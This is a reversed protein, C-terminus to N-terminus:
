TVQGSHWDTLTKGLTELTVTRFTCEPLASLFRKGYGKSIVRRDLIVFSGRDTRARILRGFGQRFRLAAEPVAYEGFGDEYLESRAAFIPETPVNFPLRAMILAKISGEELDVGEWLSSTGLAVTRPNEALARMVRRPPGGTGQAVVRIGAASLDDRIAARANELASYSTFLVLVRDRVALAVDTIAKAVARAYGHGGPESIDEPIAVLAAEGYDFPSGLALERSEELGVAARIREFGGDSTLTGGTMVVCREQEFLEERLAPGIALPAGHLAVSRDNRRLTAWYVMDPDPEPICQRLSARAETLTDVAASVNILSAELAEGEGGREAETELNRMSTLLSALALDLNEWSIEVQSWVPQGRVAQTLRLENVGSQSTLMGSLAESLVDYFRGAVDVAKAADSLAHEVRNALPDLAAPARAGERASRGLDAILGRGGDLAQLSSLFQQQYLELGLHRTATAELHHAEDIVLADHAPLLGGGMALDSLVLSHNVVVIDARHADTRAKRLFCPGETPPCTAAGQASMRAFIGGDRQLSIEGRDGTGTEQLWVLCKGMVRAERADQAPNAQAHAWRRYCLYNARGKLQAVRLAGPPMGLSELLGEVVPIDKQVLQEQLNITNTSVIVPGGGALAHLAAPMLYALSKGVGTGAEVILHKGDEIASAVAAAMEVQQQRHEFGPLLAELAAGSHFLRGVAQPGTEQLEFRPEDSHGSALAPRLRKTLEPLDVGLPGVLSRRRETPLAATVRAALTGVTWEDDRGLRALQELVGADFTRLRDMLLLFLDWTALADSLARHPNDHGISFRAALDQLGYNPGEPLVVHALDHTDYVRGQPPVGQRRMFSADFPANHAVMSCDGLFRRFEPLVAPFEPAADVDAQRIGTLGTIFSSLRLKPNVLTSFTALESGGRFKVAGIEIIRDRRPDVGTTELDVAVVVEDGPPLPRTGDESRPGEPASSHPTSHEEIV